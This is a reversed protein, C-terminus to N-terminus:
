EERDECKNDLKCFKNTFYNGHAASWIKEEMINKCGNCWIGIKHNQCVDNEKESKLEKNERKLKKIEAQLDAIKKYPRLIM